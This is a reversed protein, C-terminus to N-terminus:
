KGVIQPLTGPKDLAQPILHCLRTLGVTPLRVVAIPQLSQVRM